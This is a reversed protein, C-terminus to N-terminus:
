YISVQKISTLKQINLIANKITIKYKGIETIPWISNETISISLSQDDAVNTITNNNEFYIVIPKEYNGINDYKISIVEGYNYQKNELLDSLIIENDEKQIIELKEVFEYTLKMNNVYDYVLGNQQNIYSSLHNVNIDTYDILQNATKIIYASLQEKNSIINENLLLDNENVYSSLNNIKNTLSINLENDKENVYSSLEEASVKIHNQVKTYLKGLQYKSAMNTDAVKNQGNIYTKM